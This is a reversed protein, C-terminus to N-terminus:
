RDTETNRKKDTKRERKTKADSHTDRRERNKERTETETQMDTARPSKLRRSASGSTTLLDIRPPRRFRACARVWYSNSNRKDELM